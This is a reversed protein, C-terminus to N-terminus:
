QHQSVPPLRLLSPSALDPAGSAAVSNSVASTAATSSDALTGTVASNRSAMVLAPTVAAVSAAAAAALAVKAKNSKAPQEVRTVSVKSNKTLNYDLSGSVLLFVPEASTGAIRANSKPALAISSGDHFSIQAPATSTALEDGVVLPWSAIGKASISHGDLSFPQSTSVSAVPTAAFSVSGFLGLVVPLIKHHMIQKASL